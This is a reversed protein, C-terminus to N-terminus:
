IRFFFSDFLVKRCGRNLLVTGCVHCPIEYAHQTNFHIVLYYMAFFKKQCIDCAFCKRTLIKSLYNGNCIERECRDCKTHTLYSQHDFLFIVKDGKYTSINKFFSKPSTMILVQNYCDTGGSTIEEGNVFAEGRWELQRLEQELQTWGNSPSSILLRVNQDMIFKQITSGMEYEPKTDPRVIYKKQEYTLNRWMIKAVPSEWIKSTDTIQTIIDNGLPRFQHNENEIFKNFVSIVKRWIDTGTM